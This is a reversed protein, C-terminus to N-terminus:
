HGHHHHGHGGHSADDQGQDGALFGPHQEADKDDQAREHSRESDAATDDVQQERQWRQSKEQAGQHGADDM